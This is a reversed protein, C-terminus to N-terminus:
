LKKDLILQAYQNARVELPLTQYLLNMEEETITGEHFLEDLLESKRYQSIGEEEFLIEDNLYDMYHGIEHLLVFEAISCTNKCEDILDNMCDMFNPLNKSMEIVERFSINILIHKKDGMIGDDDEMYAFSEGYSKKFRIKVGKLIRFYRIKLRIALVRTKMFDGFKIYDNDKFKM